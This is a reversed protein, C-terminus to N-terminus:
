LSLRHLIIGELLLIHSPVNLLLLGVPPNISYFLIFFISLGFSSLPLLFRMSTTKSKCLYYQVVFLGGYAFFICFKLQEALIGLMSLLVLGGIVYDRRSM